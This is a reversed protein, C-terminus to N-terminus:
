READRQVGQLHLNRFFIYPDDLRRRLEEYKDADAAFEQFNDYAMVASTAPDETLYPIPNLFYDAVLSVGNRVDSSGFIPLVLYIGYGVGYGALTDEFGTATKKLGFWAQAPDFLGGVGVTSNIVFRALHRGLPRPELQLVDNAVYIPTRINHFFNGVSRRAPAPVAWVYGKSIPILVRRYTFDNFAFTARNLGILPDRYKASAVVTPELGGPPPKAGARREGASACGCALVAALILAQWRPGEPTAKM